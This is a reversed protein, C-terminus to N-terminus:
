GTTGRPRPGPQGGGEGPQEEPPPRPLRCLVAAQGRDAAIQGEGGGGDGPVCAGRPHTRRGESAPHQRVRRQVLQSGRPPGRVSRESTSSPAIGYTRREHM